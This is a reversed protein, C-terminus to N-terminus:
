ARTVQDWIRLFNGGLIKAVDPESYGREILGNIIHPGTPGTGGIVLTKM